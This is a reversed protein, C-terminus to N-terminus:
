PRGSPWPGGAPQAGFLTDSVDTAFHWWCFSGDARSVEEYVDVVDVLPLGKGGAEKPVMLGNLDAQDLAHLAVKSVTPGAANGEAALTDFLDRAADLQPTTM